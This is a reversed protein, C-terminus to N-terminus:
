YWVGGLEDKVGNCEADTCFDVQFVDYAGIEVLVVIIM